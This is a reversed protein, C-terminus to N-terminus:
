MRNNCFHGKKVDIGLTENKIYHLKDTKNEMTYETPTIAVAMKRMRSSIPTMMATVTTQQLRLFSVRFLPFSPTDSRFTYLTYEM